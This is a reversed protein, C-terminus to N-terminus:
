VEFEPRDTLQRYDRSGGFSWLIWGLEYSRCEERVVLRRHNAPNDSRRLTANVISRRARSGISDLEGERAQSRYFMREDPRLMSIGMENDGFLWLFGKVLAERAGAVGHAVAHHLFAPAMGHQHVSYIEHFDVVQARPVYYFWGWEGRPGQLAIMQATAENAAELAWRRDFAEGFHYLALISYVQSAFSSFRRRYGNGQNYFIHSSRDHYHKRLYTALTEAAAGWQGGDRLAMATIGSVLMGIDHATARRLAYPNALIANVQDVLSGPPEIDLKAGAWLAMGLRYIRVRPSRLEDCCGDYTSKVNVYECGTLASLQSFGLLVNLTYFADSEPMPENVPAPVDFRFRHSFRGVDPMWCRRLGQLAYCVLPSDVVEGAMRSGALEAEVPAVRSMLAAQPSGGGIPVRNM